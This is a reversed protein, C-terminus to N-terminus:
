FYEDEVGDPDVPKAMHRVPVPVLEEELGPVNRLRKKRPGPIGRWVKHAFVREEWTVTRLNGNPQRMLMFREEDKRQPSSDMFCLFRSRNYFADPNELVKEHEIMQVPADRNPQLDTGTRPMERFPPSRANDMNKRMLVKELEREPVGDERFWLSSGKYLDRVLRRTESFQTLNDEDEEGYIHGLAFEWMEEAREVFDFWPGFFEPDSKLLIKEIRKMEVWPKVRVLQYGFKQGM